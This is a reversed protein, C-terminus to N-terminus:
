CVCQLVRWNSDSGRCEPYSAPKYLCTYKHICHSHVAQTTHVCFTNIMGPPIQHRKLLRIGKLQTHTSSHAGDDSPIFQLEICVRVHVHTYRRTGKCWVCACVCVCMCVRVYVRVCVCVCVCVHVCARVCARVCVCVRVCVRVCVCVCVCVCACVCVCVCACVCVCVCVCVCTCVCACVCVCVCVCVCMYKTTTYHRRGNEGQLHWLYLVCSEVTYLHETSEQKLTTISTHM